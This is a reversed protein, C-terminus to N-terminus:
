RSMRPLHECIQIGRASTAIPRFEGRIESAASPKLDVMDQTPAGGLLYLMIVSKARGPRRRSPRDEAALLRPLTMGGLFSLAGAQLTERRTIGDFFRRKSGLMTLMPGGLAAHFHMEAHKSLTLWLRPRHLRIRGCMTAKREAFPPNTVSCVRM